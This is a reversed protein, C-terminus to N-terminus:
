ISESNESSAIVSDVQEDTLNLLREIKNDTNKGKTNEIGEIARDLEEDKLSLAWKLLIGRSYEQQKGLDIDQLEYLKSNLNKLEKGLEVKKVEDTCFYLDKVFMNIEHIVADIEAKRTESDKLYEDHTNLETM